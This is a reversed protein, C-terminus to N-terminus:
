KPPPNAALFANIQGFGSIHASAGGDAVIAQGTIYRAEDSALFAVLYGIDTSEGLYPTLNESEQIPFLFPPLNQNAGETKTIGPLVANCRIGLKGHSTAISRSMQIIAAKSAGYAAQVSAGLIGLASATNIISGGGNKVMHPLALKCCLMTGRVNVNFIRDWVELDMTEINFDRKTVSLDAANNHLVDLKGFQQITAQILHDISEPKSLDMPTAIAKLGQSRLTAAAQELTEVRTGTMIVQAGREAMIRATAYGIGAGAGTVIAVKGTLQSM